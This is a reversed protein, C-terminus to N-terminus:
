SSSPEVTAVGLVGGAVAAAQDALELAEAVLDGEPRERLGGSGWRRNQNTPGTSRNTDGRVVYRTAV